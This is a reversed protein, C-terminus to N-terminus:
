SEGSTKTSTPKDKAQTSNLRKERLRATKAEREKREIEAMQRAVTATLERRERQEQHTPM